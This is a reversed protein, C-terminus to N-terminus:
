IRLDLNVVPTTSVPPLHFFDEILFNKWLKTPVGKSLLTLMYQIYIKAKFNVKLYRFGSILRMTQWQHRQYRQCNAVPTPNVGAAFKGGTDNVGTAFNAVPILLVLSVPPLTQRRHRQYRYDVKLQSYRRSNEFFNSVARITYEPAQPFSIWSFVLHLCDRSVTGKVSKVWQQHGQHLPSYSEGILLWKHLAPHINDPIIQKRNQQQPPRNPPAHPSHTLGWIPRVKDWWKQPTNYM